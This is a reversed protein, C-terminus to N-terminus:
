SEVLRLSCRRMTQVCLTVNIRDDLNYDISNLREREGEREEIRKTLRQREIEDCM